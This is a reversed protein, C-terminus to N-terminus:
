EIWYWEYKTCRLVKVPTGISTSMKFKYVEKDSVIFKVTKDVEVKVNSCGKEMSAHYLSIVSDSGHLLTAGIIKKGQMTIVNNGRKSFSLYGTDLLKMYGSEGYMLIYDANESADFYVANTICLDKANKIMRNGASSRKYRPFDVLKLYYMKDGQIMGVVSDPHADDEVSIVAALHDGDNLNIIRSKVSKTVEQLDMMKGYGQETVMIVSEYGKAPSGNLISVVDKMGLTSVSIGTTSINFAYGNLIKLIGNQDFVLVSDSNQIKLLKYTNNIRPWVDHLKELNDVCFYYESNYLIWKNDNPEGIGESELNMLPAVRKRGYKKLGEKLEARVAEKIASDDSLYKRYEKYVRIAEDRKELTETIDMKQLNGLRINVISRAQFDTFNFAKRLQTISEDDNKSTRIIHIAKDTADKSGIITAIAEYKARDKAAKLVIQHFYRRKQDYRQNIWMLLIQRPTCKEPKYNFILSYKVGVVKQLSTSKYLKEALVHPDYGHEYEVLVEIGGPLKPRAHIEVNLVEPLRKVPKKADDLKIATIEKYIQNGTVGIPLATFVIIYKDEIKNGNMRQDTHVYYPARMKVKFQKQDFCGKLKKSNVIQVPNYIDPYISIKAQPNDMLELTANFIDISNFAGLWSSAGKGIGQNWQMLINPYRSILYVPEKGSYEYADKEDYLPRKPGIDGFFCDMAYDSLSAEAYRASAPRLDKMNGYNGIERVYPIMMSNERGLRYITDAAARDGHPYVKEIMSGVVSEVKTSKKGYYGNRWMTFLARREVSKLGDEIWPIARGVNMNMSYILGKNYVYDGLAVESGNVIDESGHIDVLTSLYVNSDKPIDMLQRRMMFTDYPGGPVPKLVLFGNEDRVEKEKTKAM